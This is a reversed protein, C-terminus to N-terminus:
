RASSQRWTPWCRCVTRRGGGLRLPAHHDQYPPEGRRVGQLKSCRLFSLSEEIAAMYRVFPSESRRGSPSFSSSKPSACHHPTPCRLTPLPRGSPIPESLWYLPSKPSPPHTPQRM